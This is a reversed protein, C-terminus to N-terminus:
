FLGKLFSLHCKSHEASVLETLIYRAICQDQYAHHYPVNQKLMPQTYKSNCGYITQGAAHFLGYCLVTAPLSNHLPILGTFIQCGSATKSVAHLTLKDM